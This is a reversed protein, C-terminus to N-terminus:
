RARGIGKLISSRSETTKRWGGPQTGVPGSTDPTEMFPARQRVNKGGSIHWDAYADNEIDQALTNWYDWLDKYGNRKTARTIDDWTLNNREMYPNLYDTPDGDPFYNSIAHEVRQWIQDLTPKKPKAARAAQKAYERERKAAAKKADEKRRVEGSALDVLNKNAAKLLPHPARAEDMYEEDEGNMLAEASGSMTAMNKGMYGHDDSVAMVIHPYWYSRARGEEPTGRVLRMASDALEKIELAIDMLQQGIDYTNEDEYIRTPKYDHVNQQGFFDAMRGMGASSIKSPLSYSNSADALKNGWKAYLKKVADFVPKTDGDETRVTLTPLQHNRPYISWDVTGSDYDHMFEGDLMPEDGRWIIIRQPANKDPVRIYWKIPKPAEVEPEDAEDLGQHLSKYQNVLHKCLAKLSEAGVKRAARDMDHTSFGYERAWDLVVKLPDSSQYNQGILEEIKDNIFDFTRRSINPRDPPNFPVKASKPRRANPGPRADPLEDTEIVAGEDIDGRRRAERKKNLDDLESQYHQSLAGMAARAMPSPEMRKDVITTKGPQRVIVRESNENMKQVYHIEYNGERDPHDFFRDQAKQNAFKKTFPKSKMGYVGQVTRPENDQLDKEYASENTKKVPICKDKGNETGAYRKGKWCRKGDAGKKAETERLEEQDISAHLENIKKQLKRVTATDGNEKAKAMKKELPKIQEKVSDVKNDWKTLRDIRAIDSSERVEQKLEVKKNPFKNRIREMDAEAEHKKAYKTSPKGDIYLV